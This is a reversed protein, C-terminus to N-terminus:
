DLIEDQEKERKKKKRWYLFYFALSGALLYGITQGIAFGLEYSTM